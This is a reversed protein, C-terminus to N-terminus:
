SSVEFKHSNLNRQMYSALRYHLRKQQALYMRAHLMIYVPKVTNYVASWIIQVISAILVTIYFYHESHM